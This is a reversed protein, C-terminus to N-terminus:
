RDKKTKSNKTAQAFAARRGMTSEVGKTAKQVNLAVWNPPSVVRMGRKTKLDVKLRSGDFDKQVCYIMADPPTGKRMCSVDDPLSILTFDKKTTISVESVNVLKIEDSIKRSVKRVGANRDFAIETIIFPKDGILEIEGNKIRIFNKMDYVWHLKEAM